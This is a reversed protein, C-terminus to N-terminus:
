ATSQGPFFELGLRVQCTSRGDLSPVENYGIAIYNDGNFTRDPEAEGGKASSATRVTGARYIVRRLKKHDPENLFEHQKIWIM